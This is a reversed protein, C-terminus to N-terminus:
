MHGGHPIEADLTRVGRARKSEETAARLKEYLVMVDTPLGNLHVDPTSRDMAALVINGTGALRQGFPREVVYDNIRYIDIQDMRKSFMGTEVVIRQTTIRYHTGRSVFFYYVLALGATILVIFWNFVSPCLAPNGEFLLQEGSTPHPAAQNDTVAGSCRM